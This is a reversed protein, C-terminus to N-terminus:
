KNNKVHKYIDNLQKTHRQIHILAFNIWEFITFKESNPLQFDRCLLSMDHTESANLLESEIKLLSLTLLNKNYNKIEPKLFDPSDMKIDFNLFLDKLGKVQEDPKRNTKEKKGNFVEPYGSCALILHQILQGGTWSGEFPVINIEEDSFSDLIENLKKFTEIIDKQVIARM